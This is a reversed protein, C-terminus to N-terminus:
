SANPPEGPAPPAASATAQATALAENAIRTAEKLQAAVEAGTDFDDGLLGYDKMRDLFAEPTLKGVKLAELLLKLGEVTIMNRLFSTNVDVTGGSTLRMWKAHYWMATNIADRLRYAWRVIPAVADSADINRGTATAYMGPNEFSLGFTRMHSELRELEDAGARLHVGNSEIWKMNAKEEEFALSTLPGIKAAGAKADVGFSALIPFSAVSLARRQDSRIQFHELNMYALNELPPTAEYHGTENINLPVAAVMGLTNPKLGDQLVWNGTLDQRYTHFDNPEIVRIEDVVKEGFAGDDEIVQTWYRFQTLTYRGNQHRYKVGLVRHQPIVIWYPRVGMEQEDRLTTTGGATIQPVTHYDVILWSIGEDLAADMYKEAVITWHNGNLDADNLQTQIQAPVDDNLTPPQTFLKGLITNVAQSYYNRLSAFRLRVQYDEPEENPYAPLYQSAKGIMRATGARLDRCIRSRREMWDCAATVFAPSDSSVGSAVRPGMFTLTYQPETSNPNIGPM